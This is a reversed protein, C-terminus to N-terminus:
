IMLDSIHPESSDRLKVKCRHSQLLHIVQLSNYPMYLVFLLYSHVHPNRVCVVPIRVRAAAYASKTNPGVALVMVCLLLRYHMIGFELGIFAYGLVENYDPNLTYFCEASIRMFLHLTCPQRQDLHHWGLQDSM